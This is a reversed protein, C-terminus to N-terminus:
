QLVSQSWRLCNEFQDLDLESLAAAYWWKGRDHM